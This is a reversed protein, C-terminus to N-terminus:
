FRGSIKRHAEVRKIGDKIKYSDSLSSLRSAMETILETYLKYLCAKCFKDNYDIPTFRKGCAACELDELHKAMEEIDRETVSV